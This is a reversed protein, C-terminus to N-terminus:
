RRRLRSARPDPRLRPSTRPPPRPKWLRRAIATPTLDEYYRLYLLTRQEESLTVVLEILGRQVELTELLQEATPSRQEGPM